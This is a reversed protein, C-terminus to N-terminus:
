ELEVELTHPPPTAKQLRESVTPRSLGYAAVAIAILAGVLPVLYPSPTVNYRTGHGQLRANAHDAERKPDFPPEKFLAM